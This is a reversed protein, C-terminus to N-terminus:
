TWAVPVMPAITSTPQSVSKTARLSVKWANARSTARCIAAPRESCNTDSSSIGSSKRAASSSVKRPLAAFSPLGSFMSSLIASPM